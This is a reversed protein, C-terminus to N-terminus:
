ARQKRGSSGTNRVTSQPASSERINGPWELGTVRRMIPQRFPNPLVGSDSRSVARKLWTRYNAGMTPGITMAGNRRGSALIGSQDDHLQCRVRRRLVAALASLVVTAISRSSDQAFVKKRPQGSINCDDVM